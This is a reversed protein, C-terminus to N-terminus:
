HIHLLMKFANWAIRALEGIPEDAFKAALYSFVGILVSKVSSPNVRTAALLRYGAELEALRQEKDEHNEESYNNNARVAEILRNGSEIVEAYEVSNHDLGIFRDSGPVLPRQDEPRTLHENRLFSNFEDLQEEVYSIGKATIGMTDPLTGVKEIMADNGLKELAADFFATSTRDEFATLLDYPPIDAVANPEAALWYLEYLVLDYVERMRLPM